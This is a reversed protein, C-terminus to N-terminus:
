AQISAKKTTTALKWQAEFEAAKIEEAEFEDDKNLEVVEPVPMHDVPGLAELEQPTM